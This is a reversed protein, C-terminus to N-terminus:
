TCGKAIETRPVNRPKQMLDYQKPRRKLVRPEQRGPRNAVECRAIHQLAIEMQLSFTAASLQGAATLMWTSLLYQCTNTFSIQRPLKQHVFAAGAATTRILNYALLTAWLERRVMQPSKCRVQWPNLSTKIHGIDTEANWRFGYLDAISQKDYQRPALLTTIVTLSKTRRGKEVVWYRIERLILTPPILQYTEVDMWKPRQPREWLIQHDYKGLRMGRRFDSHRLHHKRACVQAGQGVLAAIMMFSCYYRDMVAVDGKTFRWLLSRLLATEGTQKGQYPGIAADMVCATALSVIAVARAVPFGCGPKQGKQQPYEAQNKPTDPMNFTFGDVLKAHMGKWLWSPDAASEVDAAIAAALEHLAQESLKARARCYDGTDSTPPQEGRQICYTVVRAVASQCSAEKGDRLVQGLFSWVMVATSYVAGLGFLNRHKAFVEAIREASLLDAFPLGERALFADTIKQFDSSCPSESNPLAAM